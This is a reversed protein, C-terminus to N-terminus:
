AVRRNRTQLLEFSRKAQDAAPGFHSFDGTNLFKLMQNRLDVLYSLNGRMMSAKVHDDRRDIGVSVAGFNQSYVALGERFGYRLWTLGDFIEAGSLFYLITSLPDLSGFVHIPISVDADDLALRISAIAEMRELISGGLEKETVGLVDFSELEKAAAMISRLQVCGQETTEPKVLFCRLQGRHNAFLHRGDDIQQELSSRSKYYDYSVFIAPIRPPWAAYIGAVDQASWEVQAVPDLYITSLDHTPSTEYGGSDVIVIDTVAAQPMPINRSHIDYASLLMCDTLFEQAIDWIRSVGPEGGPAHGFGKSSFSPVLLPTTVTM